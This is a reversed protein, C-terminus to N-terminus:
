TRLCRRLLRDLPSFLILVSVVNGLCHALDFPIGAIIYSIGAAFGGTIFYPISCLTGFFLGYLGAVISFLIPSTQKRLPLILLTLLPWVYLYNIWWISVGYILGEVLVFVGVAFLAKFGFHVVALIVLLTVLEINPLSALAVQLAIMLAAFLALVTMERIKLLSRRDASPRM